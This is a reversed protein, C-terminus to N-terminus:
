EAKEIRVTYSRGQWDFFAPYRENDVVRLLNFQEAISRAPDLRSDKPRRLPYGTPEGEQPRGLPPAAENLFRLCLEITKAGQVARLEDILEHGEFRMVDQYVIAGTDVEEAADFLCIPIDNEGALIQWTLPSFGHGEPLPSEHVSLNRKHRSLVGPPAIKICGLFFAVDGEAMDDHSRCLVARDGAENARSVLAESVPLIWSPNDVVISVRRPRRWWDPAQTM